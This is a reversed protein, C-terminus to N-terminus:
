SASLPRPPGDWDIGTTPNRHVKDVALSWIVMPIGCALLACMAAAPGTFAFNRSIGAWALLGVLGVVGVMTSVASVPRPERRLEPAIKVEANM